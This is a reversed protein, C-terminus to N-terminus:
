IAPPFVTGRLLEKILFDKVFHIFIFGEAGEPMGIARITAFM